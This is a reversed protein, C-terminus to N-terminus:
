PMPTISVDLRKRILQVYDRAAGAMAATYDCDPAKIATLIRIKHALLEQLYSRTSKLQPVTQTRQALSQLFADIQPHLGEASSVIMDISAIRPDSPNKPGRMPATPPSRALCFDLATMKDSTALPIPASETRRFPQDSDVPHTASLTPGLYLQGLHSPTSAYHSPPLLPTRHLVSAHASSHILKAAPLDPTEQADHIVTGNSGSESTGSPRKEIGSVAPLPPALSPSLQPIVDFFALSKTTDVRPAMATCSQSSLPTSTQRKLENRQYELVCQSQASPALPNEM